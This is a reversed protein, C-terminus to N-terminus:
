IEKKRIVHHKTPLIPEVDMDIAVSKAVDMSSILGENKYKEFFLLISEIQKITSVICM